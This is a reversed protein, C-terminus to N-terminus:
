YGGTRGNEEINNNNELPKKIEVVTREEPKEGWTLGLSIGPPTSPLRDVKVTFLPEQFTTRVCWVVLPLLAQSSALFM